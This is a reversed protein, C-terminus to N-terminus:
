TLLSILSPCSMAPLTFLLRPLSFSSLNSSIMPSFPTLYLCSSKVLTWPTKWSCRTRSPKAMTTLCQKCYHNIRSTHIPIFGWHINKLCQYNFIPSIWHLLQHFHFSTASKQVLLHVTCCHLTPIDVTISTTIGQRLYCSTINLIFQKVITECYLLRTIFM